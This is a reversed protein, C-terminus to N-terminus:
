APLKFVRVASLLNRAYEVLNSTYEGQEALRQSTQESSKRIQTAHDLLDNSAKAQGQSSMAIKQVLEVLGSTTAQTTQMQEGAQEALKSGEVVQAIASNMTNVTDATEVQISNVLTAIQATAQRSSEALRQVEDAVVAFGRGAEGASAAHMSANLALIHTREAITNIINVVGSIEQSREGLRKIRKETERIVDRTSNIGGVTSTVTELARQTTQIADDAAENCVRALEAIENMSASADALATATHEVEARDVEAAAIVSDSQEKVKLSASTVDASIDSVELLVKGTESTLLNLADAVAGTVDETVPVKVTLDKRSLQAVAQLLGLVSENLQENERQIANQIAVREDMMRDFATGLEGVEDFTDLNARAEDDGTALKQVVGRLHGLPKMRSSIALWLLGSLLVAGILGFVALMEAMITGNKTIESYETGGAIVWGWLESRDYAVFKEEPNNEEDYWLYSFFGSKQELLAALTGAQGSGDKIEQVSQGQLYPHVVMLGTTADVLYAYGQDGFRTEKITEFLQALTDSLDMGVFLVAAVRGDAGQVPTYQTMYDKGFLEAQGSFVSGGILTRYAPHDQGLVTGLEREGQQDRLTTAIRVFEDGNRVFVTAAAETREAFADLLAEDDVLSRNGLMVQPVETGGVSVMQNRDVTLGAKFEDDFQHALEAVQRQTIEYVLDATRRLGDVQSKFDTQAASTSTQDIFRGSFFILTTLILVVLLGAILSIQNALKLNSFRFGSSPPRSRPM